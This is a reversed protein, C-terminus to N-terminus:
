VAERWLLTPNLGRRAGCGRAAWGGRHLRLAGSGCDAKGGGPRKGWGGSLNKDGGAWRAHPQERFHRSHLNLPKMLARCLLPSPCDAHGGRRQVTLFVPKVPADRQGPLGETGGPPPTLTPGGARLLTRRRDKLASITTGSKKSSNLSLAVAGKKTNWTFCCCRGKEGGTRPVRGAWRWVHFSGRGEHASGM